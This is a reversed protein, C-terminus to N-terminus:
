NYGTHNCIFNVYHKKKMIDVKKLLVKLDKQKKISLLRRNLCTTKLKNLKCSRTCPMTPYNNNAIKQIFLNRGFPDLKPFLSTLKLYTM